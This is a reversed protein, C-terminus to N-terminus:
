PAFPRRYRQRRTALRELARQEWAGSLSRFCGMKSVKALTPRERRLNGKTLRQKGAIDEFNVDSLLTTQWLTPSRRM